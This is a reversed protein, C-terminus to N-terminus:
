SCFTALIPPGIFVSSPDISVVFPRQVLIPPNALLFLPNYLLTRMRLSTSSSSTEPTTPRPDLTADQFIHRPFHLFFSFTPAGNKEKKKKANGIGAGWWWLPNVSKSINAADHILFKLFSKFSCLQSPNFSIFVLLGAAKCSYTQHATAFLSNKTYTIFRESADGDGNSLLQLDSM